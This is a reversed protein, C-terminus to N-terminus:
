PALHRRIRSLLAQAIRRDKESINPDVAKNFAAAYLGHLELISKSTLDINATFFTM